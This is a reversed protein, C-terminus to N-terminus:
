CYKLLVRKISEFSKKLNDNNNNYLDFFICKKSLKILLNDVRKKNPHYKNLNKLFYNFSNNNECYYGLGEGTYYNKELTLVPKNLVLAEIGAKSNITIVFKCKKIINNSSINNHFFGVNKFKKKIKHYSNRAFILPHEKFVIKEYNNAFIKKLSSIQDIKKPARLTLALDRPVHLPYYIFNKLSELKEKKIFINLIQFIIRQFFDLCHIGLNRFESKENKIFQIIKVFFRHLVYKSFLLYFMNKKKLHLDKFNIAIYETSNLQESYNFYIKKAESGSNFDIGEDIEITNKLFFCYKKLFTPEIFLHDINNNQTYQFLSLHCIFGGLEQIVLKIDYSYVIKEFAAYYKKYKKELQEYSSFSWLKEHFLYQKQTNINNEFNGNLFNYFYLKNIRSKDKPITIFYLFYIEFDKPNFKKALNSFFLHDRKHYICFLIKKM